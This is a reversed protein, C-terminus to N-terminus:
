GYSVLLRSDVAALDAAHTLLERMVGYVAWYPVLMCLASLASLVGAVVLLCKRQGAIQFLRGLGEKKKKMM